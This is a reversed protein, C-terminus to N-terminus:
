QASGSLKYDSMQAPIYRSEARKDNAYRTSMCTNLMAKIPNTFIATYLTLILAITNSPELAYQSLDRSPLRCESFSPRRGCIVSAHVMSTLKISNAVASRM